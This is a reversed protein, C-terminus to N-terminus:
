RQACRRRDGNRRCQHHGQRRPEATHRHRGRHHHRGRGAAARRDLRDLHRREDQHDTVPVDAKAAAVKANGDYRVTYTKSGPDATNLFGLSVTGTGDTDGEVLVAGGDLVAVHGTLDAGAKPTKVTVTFASQDGYRISGAGVSATILGGQDGRSAPGRRRRRMPQTRAVIRPPPGDRAGEATLSPIAGGGPIGAVAADGAAAGDVAFSVTGTAPVGSSTSVQALAAGGNVSVVLTASAPAAVTSTPAAASSQAAASTGSTVAAPAPTGVSQLSGSDSTSPGCAVLALALAGAAVLGGTRSWRTGVM